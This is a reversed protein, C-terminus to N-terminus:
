DARLGATSVARRSWPRLVRHTLLVALLVLALSLLLTGGEVVLFIGLDRFRTPPSVVYMAAAGVGFGLVAMPLAVLGAEWRQSREVVEYPMGGARLAAMSRSRYRLSEVAQVALAATVVLLAVGLLVVVLVMAVVYYSFDTLDQSDASYAILTSAVGGLGSSVLAIAGVAAAARGATRPETVLRRAALLAPASRARHQLLRGAYYGVAPAAGMLGLACLGVMFLPPFGGSSGLAFPLGFVSAALAVLGWPRPPTRHQRRTFTLPSALVSGTVRWGIVAGLLGVGVVVALVHWWSPGVTVPVLALGGPVTPWTSVDPIADARTTGGFLSRLVVYLGFGGVGGAAAPVGVEVAGLGRIQASTAGALRLAALRRDRDASGLQVAQLLLLLVPVVLLALALIAGPRTGTDVLVAYLMEDPSGPLRVLAIVLLLLTSALATCGVLLALRAAGQTRMLVWALHRM